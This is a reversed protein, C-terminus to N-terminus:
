RPCSSRRLDEIRQRAAAIEKLYVLGAAQGDRLLPLISSPRAEGVGVRLTFVSTRRIDGYRLTWPRGKMGVFRMGYQCLVLRVRLGKVGPRIFGLGWLVGFGLPIVAAAGSQTEPHMFYVFLSMAAFGLLGIIGICIAAVPGAIGPGFREVEEGLEDASHGKTLVPATAVEKAEDYEEGRRRREVDTERLDSALLSLRPGEM